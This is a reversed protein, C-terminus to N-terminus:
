KFPWAQYRSSAQSFFAQAQFNQFPLFSSEAQAQSVFAQSLKLKVFTPKFGDSSIVICKEARIFLFGFDYKQASFKNFQCDKLKIAFEVEIGIEYAALISNM